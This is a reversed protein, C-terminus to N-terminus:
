QPPTRPIRLSRLAAESTPMAEHAESMAAATSLADQEEYLRALVSTGWPFTRNRRVVVWQESM